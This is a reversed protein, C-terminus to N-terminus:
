EKTPIIMRNWGFWMICWLAQRGLALQWFNQTQAQPSKSVSILRVISASNLLHMHAPPEPAHRATSKLSDLIELQTNSMCMRMPPLQLFKFVLLVELYDHRGWGYEFFDSRSENEEEVRENQLCLHGLTWM